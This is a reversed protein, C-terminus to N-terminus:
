RSAGEGTAVPRGSLWRLGLGGLRVAEAPRTRALWTAQRAFGRATLRRFYRVVEPTERAEARALLRALHATGRWLEGSPLVTWSRMAATAAVVDATAVPAGLYAQQMRTHVTASLTEGAAGRTAVVSQAHRRWDVLRDPLNDIVTRGWLRAWLDSDQATWYTEDYGGVAAVVERRFMVGPHLIPNTLMIRFGVIDAGVPQRLNQTFRGAEDIMRGNTSLVGLDPRARFAAVQRALRDPHYVDDADARAVLPATCHALGDNLTAALGPRASAEILVVRADTGAYAALRDRTGADAGDVVVVLRFDRLSQALLSEVAPALFEGNRVPMLIDVAAM